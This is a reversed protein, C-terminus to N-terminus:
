ASCARWASGSSRAEFISRRRPGRATTTTSSSTSSGSPAPPSGRAIVFDRVVLALLGSAGLALAAVGSSISAAETSEASETAEVLPKNERYNSAETPEEPAKEELAQSAHLRWGFWWVGIAVAILAVGMAPAGTRTAHPALQGRVGGLFAGGGVVALVVAAGQAIQPRLREFLGHDVLPRAEGMLRHLLLGVMVAAGPVAPFIYHHFKTTMASFLAFALSFWLFGLRAVDRQEASADRPVVYRWGMLAVPVLGSWPFM